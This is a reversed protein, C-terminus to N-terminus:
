RIEGSKLMKDFEATDILIKANKSVSTRITFKASNDANVVRKLFSRPYGLAVLETISMLKKEYKMYEGENRYGNKTVKFTFFILIEFGYISDRM